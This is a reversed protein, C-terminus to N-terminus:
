GSGGLTRELSPFIVGYLVAVFGILFFIITSILRFSGPNKEKNMRKKKAFLSLLLGFFAMDAAVGLVLYICYPLTLEWATPSFGFVQVYAWSVLSLGVAVIGILVFLNFIFLFFIM